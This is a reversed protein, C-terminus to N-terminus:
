PTEHLTRLTSLVLGAIDDRTLDRANLPEVVLQKALGPFEKFEAADDKVLKDLYEYLFLGRAAAQQKALRKTEPLLKTTTLQM